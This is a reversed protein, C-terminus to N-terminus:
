PKIVFDLFTFPVINCFKKILSFPQCAIFSPPQSALLSSLQSKKIVFVGWLVFRDAKYGALEM